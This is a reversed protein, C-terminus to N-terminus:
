IFKRAPKVTAHISVTQEKGFLQYVTCIYTGADSLQLNTISLSGDRAVAYHGSNLDLQQSDKKWQYGPMPFGKAGLQITGNGGVSGINQNVPANLKDPTISM